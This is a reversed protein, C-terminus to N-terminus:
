RGGVFLEGIYLGAEYVEIEVLKLTEVPSLRYKFNVPEIDEPKCVKFPPQLVLLRITEPVLVKVPPIADLPNVRETGVKDDFSVTARRDCITLGVFKQVKFM